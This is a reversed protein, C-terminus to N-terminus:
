SRFDPLRSNALIFFNSQNAILEHKSAVTVYLVYSHDHGVLLYKDKLDTGWAVSM